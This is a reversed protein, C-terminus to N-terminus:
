YEYSEGELILMQQGTPDDGASMEFGLEKLSLMYGYAVYAQKIETQIQYYLEAVSDKDGEFMLAGDTDLALAIGRDLGPVFVSLNLNSRRIRGWYDQYHEAVTGGRQQAVLACANRLTEIEPNVIPTREKTIHSM